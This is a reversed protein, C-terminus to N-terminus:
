PLLMFRIPADVHILMVSRGWLFSGRNPGRKMVMYASVLVNEGGRDGRVRSPTGYIEAGLLFLELVTSALNNTNAHLATIQPNLISWSNLGSQSYFRAVCRAATVM